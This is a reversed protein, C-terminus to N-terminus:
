RFLSRAATVIADEGVLVQDAAPGLPIFSNQSNVRAMRGSYGADHLVGLVSESVGGSYRTEDVILVREFTAATRVIDDVPLPALWRFDLVTASIGARALRNAVRLSMPVGNGFTLILLDHGAGHRRARGFTERPSQATTVVDTTAM